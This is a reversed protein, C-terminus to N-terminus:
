QFLSKSFIQRFFQCSQNGVMQLRYTEFTEQLEKYDTVLTSFSYQLQEYQSRHPLGFSYFLYIITEPLHTSDSIIIHM